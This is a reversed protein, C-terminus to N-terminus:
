RIFIVKRFVQNDVEIVITYIGSHCHSLNFIKQNTEQAYVTKGTANFISIYARDFPLNGISFQGDSPNPYVVFNEIEHVQISDDIDIEASASNQCGNSDTVNLIYIGPLLNAITFTTAANSWVISYSPTGGEVSSSIAGPNGDISHTIEFDISLPPPENIVFTEQAICGLEDSATISHTGAQLNETPGLLAINGFGGSVNTVIAGSTHGFCAVDITELNITLEDHETVVASILTTCNYADIVSAVYTGAILEVLISSTSDNDWVVDYSSESFLEITGTSDGHCNVQESYLEYEFEPAPEISITQSLATFGDTTTVEVAILTPEFLTVYRNTEGNTWLYSEFEGGDLIISDGACLHLQSGLDLAYSFTIGEVVEFLQNSEVDYLIDTWGSPWNVIVSDILLAEGLGFHVHQSRQSLYGEGCQTYHRSVESNVYVEIWAGIGDKNSVTGKLEIKAWNGTPGINEWLTVGFIGNNVQALDIAGDNNFDLYSNSFSPTLNSPSFSNEATFEQGNNNSFLPNSNASQPSQTSVFLDLFRDNNYDFWLAGWSFRDITIGLNSAVEVFTSNGENRLVKNGSANNSIYIDLDGDRDYDGITNSMADVVINSNSDVSFDVFGEEEDNLFLANPPTKDNIIYLDPRLDNNFDAFCPMFSPVIENDVGFESALELFTGDGQNVFLWNTSGNLWDYNCIYLDLDGDLDFDAWAAGYSHAPSLALIGAASAVDTLNGTGDNNFLRCASQDNSVFLDPDGDNDYDAWLVAKAMGSNPLIDFLAYEGQYNVFLYIGNSETAFTLDDWGDENFDYTSMGSGLNPTGINVSLSNENTVNSFQQAVITTTCLVAVGLFIWRMANKILTFGLYV